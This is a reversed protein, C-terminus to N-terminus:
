KVILHASSWDSESKAFRIIDSVVKNQSEPELSLLWNLFITAQM